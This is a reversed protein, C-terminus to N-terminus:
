GAQRGEICSSSQSPRRFLLPQKNMFEASDRFQLPQAALDPLCFENCFEKM